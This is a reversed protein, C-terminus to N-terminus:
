TCRDYMSYHSRPETGPSTLMCCLCTLNLTTGVKFGYRM